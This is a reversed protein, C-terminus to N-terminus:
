TGYLWLALPPTIITMILSLPGGVKLFDLFRYGGAGYVMTNTQYGIPTIFSNSAAFTIVFIVTLPSLGVATAVQVGIPLLLIVSANNSLVATLLVTLVYILTLTWYSSLSGSMAVLQAAIWETAGSNQMATGMPILCALLFIVDWRVAQYLEGPKLCGTVLMAVVGALASVLIPYDTIAATAVVALGITLAIYTKSTRLTEVDRQELLLLDRSTQLGALSQKPGQVLLLDGFRLPVKGMRDRVLEQGRRIALVTVNYKQRFRLDKLTSGVLSSNAIVLAEAIGEEESLDGQWSKHGFQVDPLIELGESERIKLLDQKGGRALLIDGVTMKKDALPQPFHTNNRIIELVDVDFRRQLQSDKLTKGVLSSRPTIVVESVYDKMGYKQSLGRHDVRRDPMMLPTAIAMYLLGVVFTIVGLGTFQFLSFAGFGLEASLGSALVSTSTGVVTIMGGLITAFSLPMMLKSPSIRHQQCFDEVVPLFVSVVATNNILGSIPGVIIGLAIIQRTLQKGGWQLLWSSAQQLVGTRAVGASLIFMAMVTITAPNSFGAIGQEPTVQKSLILAVMVGLATIDAPCKEVIFLMLAIAVISLTVVISM